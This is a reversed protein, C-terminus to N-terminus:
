DAPLLGACLVSTLSRAQSAIEANDMTRGAFSSLMAQQMCAGLLLSAAAAPDATSRIRGRDREASLHRALAEIPGQPGAGHRAMGERHAALIAPESFISAFIAFSQGYFRLAAEALETLTNALSGSGVRGPLSAAVRGFDPLREALVALVLEAKDHFHKYLTAESFGAAAAIERTTTRAMGRERMVRAAADVIRERSTNVM